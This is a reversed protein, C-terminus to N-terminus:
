GMGGNVGIVQGNIYGADEGTLFRVLAAVEHPTGARAAPVFAILMVKDGAGIPLACLLVCDTVSAATGMPLMVLKGAPAVASLMTVASGAVTDALVTDTLVTDALM